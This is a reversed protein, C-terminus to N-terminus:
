IVEMNCFSLNDASILFPRECKFTNQVKKFFESAVFRGNYLDIIDAYVSDLLTPGLPTSKIIEKGLADFDVIFITMGNNLSGKEAANRLRYRLRPLYSACPDYKIVFEEVAYYLKNVDTFVYIPKNGTPHMTKLDLICLDLKHKWNDVEAYYNSM